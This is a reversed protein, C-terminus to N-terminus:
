ESDSDSGYDGLAGLGVKKGNSGAGTSTASASAASTTNKSAAAVRNLEAQQARAIEAFYKINELADGGLIGASGEGDGREARQKKLPQDIEDLAEYARGVEEEDEDVVGGVAELARRNRELSEKIGETGLDTLRRKEARKQVPNPDATAWRVNLIETPYSDLSQNSM